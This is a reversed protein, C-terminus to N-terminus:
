INHLPCVDSFYMSGWRGFAIEGGGGGGSSCVSYLCLKTVPFVNEDGYAASRKTSVLLLAAEPSSLALFPRVISLLRDQRFNNSADCQTISIHREQKVLVFYLHKLHSNSVQLLHETNLCFSSTPPIPLRYFRQMSKYVALNRVPVELKLVITVLADVFLLNLSCFLPEARANQIKTCKKATRQLVVDRFSWTRRIKSFTFRM